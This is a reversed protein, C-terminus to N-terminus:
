EPKSARGLLRALEPKQRLWEEVAERAHAYGAQAIAELRRFQNMRFAKVPPQLYLDVTKRVQEAQQISALVTARMIVDFITPHWPARAFPLLWGLLVRWASPPRGSRVELDREPSVDVAIVWGGGLRRMVDGPLNNLLAGDVLLHKGEVVPEFVGPLAISARLAKWIPGDRHVKTRARTLNSSVCFYSIWLDEIRVDGFRGILGQEISRGRLLSYVPVRYDSMPLLRTSVFAARNHELMTADDWGLAPQAGILAGMSTGGVLDIPVGAERLARIVGIHALGRAGGGGLVVGVANGTLFRGLREFDVDRDWRLHHHGELSRCALWAQTGSPLATAPPHLLVLQRRAEIPGPSEGLLGRELAGRQPDAAPDTVLLIRDARDICRRTWPTDAADCEYVAYRFGAEREDLREDLAPALPSAPPTQAIGPVGVFADLRGSNVYLTKGHSQLAKVLRECFGASDVGPSVPLVVLNAREYSERVYGARRQLRGILMRTIYLMAQPHDRNLQEFVPRTFRVLHSARRAQITAIRPADTFFGMEGITDMRALEVVVQPAQNGERLGVLRGSVVVYMSDAAEGQRFLTEGGRLEVWELESEFRQLSAEDLVGFVHTLVRALQEKRLRVRVREGLAHVVEPAERSLMDLDAKGLRALVVETAAHVRGTRRGGVLLERDGVPEGPGIDGAASRLVGRLVVYMADGGGGQEIVTAGAPLPQVAMRRCLTELAPESLAAFPASARLAEKLALEMGEGTSM